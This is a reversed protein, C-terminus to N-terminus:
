DIVAKQLKNWNRHFLHSHTNGRCRTLISCLEGHSIRWCVKWTETKQYHETSPQFFPVSTRLTNDVFVVQHGVWSEFGGEKIQFKGWPGSCQMDKQALCQVLQWSLSYPLIAEFHSPQPILSHTFSYIFSFIIPNFSLIFSYKNFITNKSKTGIKKKWIAKIPPCYNMGSRTRQRWGSFHYSIHKNVKQLPNEKVRESACTVLVSNRRVIDICHWTPLHHSYLLIDIM